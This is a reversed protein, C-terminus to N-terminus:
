TKIVFRVVGVQSLEESIQEMALAEGVVIHEVPVHEFKYTSNNSCSIVVAQDEPCQRQHSPQTQIYLKATQLVRTQLDCYLQSLWVCQYFKPRCIM